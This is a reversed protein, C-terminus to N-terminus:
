LTCAVCHLVDCSLLSNTFVPEWHSVYHSNSFTQNVMPCGWHLSLSVPTMRYRVAVGICPVAFCDHHSIIHLPLAHQVLCQGYSVCGASPEDSVSPEDSLMSCFVHLAACCLEHSILIVTHWAKVLNHRMSWPVCRRSPCFPTMQYRSAAHFMCSCANCVCRRLCRPHFIEWHVISRPFVWHQLPSVPTM